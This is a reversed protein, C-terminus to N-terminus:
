GIGAATPATCGDNCGDGAIAVAQRGRHRGEGQAPGVPGHVLEAGVGRGVGQHREELRIRGIEDNEGVRICRHDITDDLHPHPHGPDAAHTDIM